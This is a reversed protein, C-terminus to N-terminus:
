PRPWDPPTAALLTVTHRFARREGPPVIAIGPKAALEDAFDMPAPLGHWPELCLFRAGPQMWLAFNPSDPFDLRVGPRGPVGFIVARSEFRDFVVPLREFLADDPVLRAGDVPTPEGDPFLVVPDGTGRRIPAPEPKEFLIVHDGKRSEPVLPWRFGIHLGVDCPMPRSDRNHVAVEIGLTKGELVYSVTLRFAFPYHVRSSPGDELALTVRDGTREAVAFEALHAFGHPPMPLRQGEIVVYGGPIGAIVPFLIPSTDPWFGPAGQWLYEAGAADRIRRMQAGVTEVEISLDPTALAVREGEQVADDVPSVQGNV